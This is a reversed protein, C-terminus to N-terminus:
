FNPPPLSKLFCVWGFFVKCAFWFLFPMEDLIMFILIRLLPLYRLTGVAEIKNYNGKKLENKCAGLIPFPPLAM